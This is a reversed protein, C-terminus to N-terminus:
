QFSFVLKTTGEHSEDEVFWGIARAVWGKVKFGSNPCRYFFTSMTIAEVADSTITTAVGVRPADSRPTL